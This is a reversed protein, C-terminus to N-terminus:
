IEGLVEDRPLADVVAHEEFHLAVHHAKGVAALPRALVDAVRAGHRDRRDEVVAAHQELPLEAVGMPAHEDLQRGALELGALRAEVGGLALQQLLGAVARRLPRPKAYDMSRDGIGILGDLKKKCLLQFILSLGPEVGALKDLRDGQAEVRRDFHHVVAADGVGLRDGAQEPHLHKEPYLIPAPGVGPSSTMRQNTKAQMVAMPTACASSVQLEGYMEWSM